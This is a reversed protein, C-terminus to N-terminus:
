APTIEDVGWIQGVEHQVQWSCGPIFGYIVESSGPSEM